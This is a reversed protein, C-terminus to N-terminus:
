RESIPPKFLLEFQGPETMFTVYGKIGASHLISYCNPRGHVVVALDILFTTVNVHWGSRRSAVFIDTFLQPSQIGFPPFSDFAKNTAIPEGTRADGWIVYWHHWGLDSDVGVKGIKVAKYPRWKGLTANLLMKVSEDTVGCYKVEEPFALAIIQVVDESEVARM